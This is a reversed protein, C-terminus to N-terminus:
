SVPPGYAKLACRRAWRATWRVVPETFKDTAYDLRAKLTDRRLAALQRKSLPKVTAQGDDVVVHKAAKISFQLDAATKTDGHAYLNRIFKRFDQLIEREEESILGIKAAREILGHLDQPLAQQPQHSKKQFHPITTALFSEVFAGCVCLAAFDQSFIFCFAVNHWISKCEEPLARPMRPLMAFRKKAKGSERELSALIADVFHITNEKSPNETTISEEECARASPGTNQLSLRRLRQLQASNGGLPTFSFCQLYDKRGPYLFFGVVIKCRRGRISGM